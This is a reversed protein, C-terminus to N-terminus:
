VAEKQVELTEDWSIQPQDNFNSDEYSEDSDFNSKASEINTDGENENDVGTELLKRIEQNM